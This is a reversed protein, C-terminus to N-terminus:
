EGPTTILRFLAFFGMALGRVTWQFVPLNKAHAICGCLAATGLWILLLTSLDPM